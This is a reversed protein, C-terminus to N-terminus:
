SECASGDGDSDLDYDDPGVVQVPGTYEPGDGSGGECDYDSANPDLCAGQYSPHCDQAQQAQQAQEEQERQAQEEQERQAQERRERARQARRERIAALEAASEKRIFTVTVTDGADAGPWDATLDVNNEGKHPLRVRGEFTDDPKLEITRGGLGNVFIYTVARQVREGAANTAEVSGSVRVTDKRVVSSDAQDVTLKVTPETKPSEAKQAAAASPKSDDSPILAGIITLVLLGGLAWLWWRRHWPKTPPEGPPGGYMNTWYTGNWYRQRDSGAPDDYWGPPAEPTQTDM